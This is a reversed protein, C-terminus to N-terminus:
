LKKEVVKKLLKVANLVDELDVMEHPSHVYRTVISLTGSPIGSRTLQYGHANTGGFLLVENQYPIANEEACKKLHDVVVRDSISARDKIKIAPGKGINLDMRKFGKPTDSHGTVDIAIDM